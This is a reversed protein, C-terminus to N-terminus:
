PGVSSRLVVRRWGQPLAEPDFSVKLGTLLSRCCFFDFKFFFEGSVMVSPGVKAQAIGLGIKSGSGVFAVVQVESDKAADPSAPLAKDKPAKDKSM